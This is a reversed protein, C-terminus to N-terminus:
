ESRITEVTSFLGPYLNGGYKGAKMTAQMECSDTGSKARARKENEVSEWANFRSSLAAVAVSPSGSRTGGSGRERRGGNAGRNIDAM